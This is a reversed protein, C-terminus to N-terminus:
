ANRGNQDSSPGGLERCNVGYTASPTNDAGARM